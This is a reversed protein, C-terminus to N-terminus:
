YKMQKKQINKLEEMEEEMEKEKKNKKTIEHQLDTIVKSYFYIL